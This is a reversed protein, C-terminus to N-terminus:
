CMLTNRMDGIGHLIALFIAQDGVCICVNLGNVIGDLFVYWHDSERLSTLHKIICKNVRKKCIGQHIPICRYEEVRWDKNMNCFREM